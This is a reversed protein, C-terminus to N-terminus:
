EAMTITTAALLWDEIPEPYGNNILWQELSDFNIDQEVKKPFGYKWGSPPDVYWGKKIVTLEM